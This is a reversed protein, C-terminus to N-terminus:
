KEWEDLWHKITVNEKKLTSNSKILVTKREEPLLDFYNDSIFSENENDLLIYVCRTYKKATIEIKSTSYGDCCKTEILSYKLGPDPWSIDRWLKPFFIERIKRDESEFYAVIYCDDFVPIDSNLINAVIESSHAKLSVEKSLIHKKKGLVDMACVSVTGTIKKYLNHTLYLEYKDALERFSLIVPECNRKIAYYSQKPLGYYDVLAWNAAPWCDNYMWILSGGNVGQRRRHHQFEASLYEASLTGAFKVFEAANHPEGFLKRVSAM